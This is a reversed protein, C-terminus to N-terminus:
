RTCFQTFWGDVMAAVRQGLEQFSEAESTGCFQEWAAERAYGLERDTNDAEGMREELAVLAPAIWRNWCHVAAAEQGDWDGMSDITATHNKM